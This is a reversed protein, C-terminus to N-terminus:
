KVKYFLSLLRVFTRAPLIRKLPISLKQIFTAIVYRFKPHKRRVIKAIKSAQYEPRM